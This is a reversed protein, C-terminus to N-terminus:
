WLGEAARKPWAQDFAEGGEEGDTMEAAIQGLTPVGEPAPRDGWTGSRMLARSCQIYIEAIEIVIVSTSPVTTFVVAVTAM